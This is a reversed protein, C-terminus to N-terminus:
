AAETLGVLAASDRWLKATVADDAALDAPDPWALRRDVHSAYLRGVPPAVVGLALDTLLGGSGALTNMRLIPSLMPGVVGFLLRVPLPHSRVLRTGPTLGPNFAIV